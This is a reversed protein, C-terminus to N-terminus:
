DSAASAANARSARQESGLLSLLNADIVSAISNCGEVNDGGNPVHAAGRQRYLGVYRVLGGIPPSVEPRTTRSKERISPLIFIALTLAGFHLM